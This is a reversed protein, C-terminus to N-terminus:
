KKDIKKEYFKKYIQLVFVKKGRFSCAVLELQLPVTVELPTTKRFIRIIVTFFDALPSFCGEAIASKFKKGPVQWIAVM